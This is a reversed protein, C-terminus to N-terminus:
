SLLTKYYFCFIFVKFKLPIISPYKKYSKITHLPLCLILHNSPMVSKISMLKFLNQSNISLFAQCAATWPTAFVQVGSLLQVSQTCTDNSRLVIQFLPDLARIHNTHIHFLPPSPYLLFFNFFNRWTGSVIHDEDLAEMQGFCLFPLLCLLSAPLHICLKPKM